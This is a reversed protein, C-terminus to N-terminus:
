QKPAPTQSTKGTRHATLTEQVRQADPAGIRQYIALAQRLCATGEGGHGDQLHARGIGELARAEEAPVGLERAIGLAQTHYDRAQQGAATRASLGGLSNLAEAQGYREGTDHSLELAQQLSVAAAAYDGTLQQVLGLESLVYVQTSREGLDRLQGLAQRQSAAAARYDGTLRQLRGRDHLMLAQGHRDGMDRELARAQEFTTAAAPYDGTLMQVIALECLAEYEGTRHGIGRFLELAQQLSAAAAPYYGTLRYVMGLGNLANAQGRRHGLGRFLELAQRNYAIAPPYDDAMLCVQAIGNIADGQGAPDGLDRYLALAQRFTAAARVYDDVAGQALGLLLLIQGQSPRDGAQRAAAVATQLLALDQDWYGGLQLFGTIAAPIVMAHRTRGTAAAYDVAAYLNARETELWSSAQAQTAIPPACDPLRAPPLSASTIRQSPIHAGAALATHLYYDLLRGTAAECTAPDDAAALAQAHERVLDHLRYRGPVPESILHQDYLGELGRRSAETTTADLAAASHADIDPGLHLGLRRFLRRQDGPLDQYSLDFAAAVSLNEARMVALRDRAAALDAALGATTWAPHQHLQSAVMGIALPLYGCLRAIEGVGADGAGLGPRGALRALLAAAEAPALTDLSIVAADELAALRRRSTILVLSGGTGPLLPRVQEHGAADDLM